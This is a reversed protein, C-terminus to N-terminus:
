EFTPSNELYEEWDLIDGRVLPSSSVRDFDFLAKMVEDPNDGSELTILIGDERCKYGWSTHRVVCIVNYNNKKGYWVYRLNGNDSHKQFRKTVEQCRRQPTWVSGWIRKKWVIIEVKGRETYAVTTPYGNRQICKYTVKRDSSIVIEQNGVIFFLLILSLCFTKFM